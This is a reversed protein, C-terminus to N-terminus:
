QGSLGLGTDLKRQGCCMDAPIQHAFRRISGYFSFLGLARSKGELTRKPAVRGIQSAPTPCQLYATVARGVIKQLTRIPAYFQTAGAPVALPTSAMSLPERQKISAIIENPVSM